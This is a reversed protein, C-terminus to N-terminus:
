RPANISAPEYEGRDLVIVSGDSLTLLLAYTYRNGTLGLTQAASLSYSVTKATNDITAAITLVPLPTSSTPPFPYATLQATASTLDVPTYYAIQGGDTYTGLRAADIDNFMLTNVDVVTASHFDNACPPWEKANLCDLGGMDTFAVSWGDIVGHSTITLTLPTAKTVAAIAKYVLPQAGYRFTQTFSAGRTICIPGDCACNM